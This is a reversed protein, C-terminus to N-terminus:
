TLISFAENHITAKRSRKYQGAGSQADSTTRWEFSSGIDRGALPM